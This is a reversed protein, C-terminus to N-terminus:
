ATYAPRWFVFKPDSVSRFFTRPPESRQKLVHNEQNERDNKAITKSFFGDSFWSFERKKELGARRGDRWSQRCNIGNELSGTCEQFMHPQRLFGRISWCTRTSNPTSTVFVNPPPLCSVSSCFSFVSGARVTFLCLFSHISEVSLLYHSEYSFWLRELFLSDCETRTWMALVSFLFETIMMEVFLIADAKRVHVVVVKMISVVSLRWLSYIVHQNAEFVSVRASRNCLEVVIEYQFFFNEEGASAGLSISLDPRFYKCSALVAAM